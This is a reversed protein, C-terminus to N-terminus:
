AESGRQLAEHEVLFRVLKEEGTQGGYQQSARHWWASGPHPFSDTVPGGGSRDASAFCDEWALRSVVCILDPELIRTVERFTANSHMRDLDGVRLSM